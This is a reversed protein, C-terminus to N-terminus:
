RRKAEQAKLPTDKTKPNRIYTKYYFSSFLYIMLVAQLSACVLLAKPYPCDTQVVLPWMQHILLLVFQVLQLKTVYKKWWLSNKMEPNTASALYYAYMVVHVFSNLIGVTAAHGGGGLYRIYVLGLSSMMIHHYVHLFTIQKYSKRLVFFITDFYDLFKNFVYMASVIGEINKLPHGTPLVSICTIPMPRKIVYLYFALGSMIANYIIQGINYYRLVSTLNYPQRNKMLAPGIKFVFLVYFISTLLYPLLAAHYPMYRIGSLNRDGPATLFGYINDVLNSM